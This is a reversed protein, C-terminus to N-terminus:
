SLHKQFFQLTKNFATELQPNSGVFPHVAGFAHNAAEILHLESLDGAWTAVDKGEQDPVSDDSTGHVVCLPIQMRKVAAEIDLAKSNKELDNYLSYNVQFVQGTRANAVELYARNRWAELVEPSYRYFNSVPAWVAAAFLGPIRSAAVLAIGGGRSHGFIGRVPSTIGNFFGRETLTAVELAEELELSYTNKSFKETETFETGHLSIGNHSFNMSLFHIGNASFQEGLWPIFGWDKFGKFGHLFLLVPADPNVSTFLSLGLKRGKTTKYVSRIEM